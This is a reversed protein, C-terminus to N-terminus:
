ARQAIQAKMYEHLNFDKPVEPAFFSRVQGDGIKIFGWGKLNSSLPRLQKENDPFVMKEIEPTPVGMNIRMNLQNRVAMPLSGGDPRQMGILIYFGLERGLMAIENLNSMATEFNAKEPDDYALRENMERYAGFEDFVLFAPEFGFDKYTGIKGKAKMKEIAEARKMMYQYYNMVAQNIESQTSYVNNALEDIYKLSALDSRKPDIIHVNKTIRLLQGIIAFITYSKGTGVNGSILANYFTDYKWDIGNSIQLLGKKPMLELLQRRFKIPEFAFTSIMMNKEFETTQRDALLAIEVTNDFEGKSFREMYKQGDVPEQLVIQGTKFLFKIRVKPFYSVFQGKEDSDTDYFGKSVILLSILQRLEIAHMYHAIFNDHELAYDRYLWNLLWGFASIMILTFVIPLLHWWTFRSTLGNKVIITYWPLFLVTVLVLIFFLARKFLTKALYQDRYKITKMM